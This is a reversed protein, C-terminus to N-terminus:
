CQSTKFKSAQKTKRGCWPAEPIKTGWSLVSGIGKVTPTCLGLWQVVLSNWSTQLKLM